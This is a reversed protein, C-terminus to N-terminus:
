PMGNQDYPQHTRTQKAWCRQQGVSVVRKHVGVIIDPKRRAIYLANDAIAIAKNPQARLITQVAVIPHVRLPKAAVIIDLLLSVVIDTRQILVFM